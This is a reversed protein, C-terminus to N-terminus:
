LSGNKTNTYQKHKIHCKMVSIFLWSWQQPNRSINQLGCIVTELFFFAALGLFRDLHSTRPKINYFIFKGDHHSLKYATKYLYSKRKEKSYTNPKFKNPQILGTTSSEVTCLIFLYLIWFSVFWAVKIGPLPFYVNICWWLDGNLSAGHKPLQKTKLYFWILSHLPFTNKSETEFTDRNFGCSIYFLITMPSFTPFFM